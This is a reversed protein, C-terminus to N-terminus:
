LFDFLSLRQVAAFAQESAQLTTLKLDLSSITQTLDVDDIDSATSQLLISAQTNM